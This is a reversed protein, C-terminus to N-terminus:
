SVFEELVREVYLKLNDAIIKKIEKQNEDKIEISHAQPLFFKAIDIELANALQALTNESPWNLCLEVSKITAESINAKEALAFQTM